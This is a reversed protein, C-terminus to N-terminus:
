RNSTGSTIRTFISLSGIITRFNLHQMFLLLIWPIIPSRSVEDSMLKRGSKHDALAQERHKLAQKLVEERMEYREVVM